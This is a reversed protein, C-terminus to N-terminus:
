GDGVWAMADAFAELDADPVFFVGSVLTKPYVSEGFFVDERVGDFGDGIVVKIDEELYFLRLGFKRGNM